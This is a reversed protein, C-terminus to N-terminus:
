AAYLHEQLQNVAARLRDASGFLRVIDAVTGHDSIPPVHLVDPLVFQDPGHEAYKELLGDLITRAQSGFQEFFAQQERKVCDARQRRTRLPANFALHCLLDLPDAEPMGAQAALLEFDIGREHLRAVVVARQEPSQWQRRLDDADSCIRRVKEATYDTLKVVRLQRGEPDLEYVLHTAIEV